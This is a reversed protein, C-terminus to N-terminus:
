EGDVLEVAFVSESLYGRKGQKSGAPNELIRLPDIPHVCRVNVIV